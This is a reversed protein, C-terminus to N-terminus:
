STSVNTLARLDFLGITQSQTNAAFAVGDPEYAALPQGLVNMSATHRRARLDWLLIAKDQSGSLFTDDTPNMSLTVVKSKHGAFYWIYKSDHLSLYRIKDDRKTSSHLAKDTRHTFQALDCGYKKSNVTHLHLANKCDYIEVTGAENSSILREGNDSYAM